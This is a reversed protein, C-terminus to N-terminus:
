APSKLSIMINITRKLIIQKELEDTISSLSINVHAFLETLVSNSQKLIGLLLHEPYIQDCSLRIAEEKSIELTKSIENSFQNVM